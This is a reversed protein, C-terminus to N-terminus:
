GFTITEEIHVNPEENQNRKKRMKRIHAAFRVFM